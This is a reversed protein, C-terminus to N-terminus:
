TSAGISASFAWATHARPSINAFSPVRWVASGYM